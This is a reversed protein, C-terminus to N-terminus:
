NPSLTCSPASEKILPMSLGMFKFIKSSIVDQLKRKWLLWPTKMVAVLEADWSPKVDCIERYIIKRLLTLPSALGVPDYIKALYRLIERKTPVGDVDQTMLVSLTNDKKNWPMGFVLINSETSAVGLQMKAATQDEDSTPLDPKDELSNENSAWKHLSFTADELITTAAGKRERAKQVTEGGSLIDDVYLSRRLEKVDEPRRKEWTALHAELVGGLLFSSPALGFM